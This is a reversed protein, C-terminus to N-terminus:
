KAEERSARQTGADERPPRPGYYQYYNCQIRGNYLKRKRDAERGALREFGRHSTIVYTSWTSLSRILTGMDRYLAEVEDLEGMREGYPPNTVIVGYDGPYVLDRFDRNELRICDETGSQRIHRGALKLVQPDVDGGIIEMPRDWDVLDRAEQRLGTWIEAPVRPWDEAAFPRNLGPAMNMGMLAAEIVITGSGCFPDVLIRDPDWYSLSILAAALTEKLPAASNLDRYGRKHLGAGSTDLTLSVRDKLLGVTIRFTGSTEPLWSVGYKKGLRSAVAKKVIAQCDPVSFLVSKVSKGEVPFMGEPPIWEEWPLSRTQEFLDDFTRATFEGVLVQIRDATRLWLNARALDEETGEFLIRGNETSLVRLGLGEVERKVVAELGFAATAAM